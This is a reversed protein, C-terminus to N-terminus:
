IIIAFRLIKPNQTSYAMQHLIKHQNNKMVHSVRDSTMKVGLLGFFPWFVNEFNEFKPVKKSKQSDFHGRILNTMGHTLRQTKMVEKKSKNDRCCKQTRTQKEKQAMLIM